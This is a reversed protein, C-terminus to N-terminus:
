KERDNGLHLDDKRRETEVLVPLYIVFTTGQGSESQITIDGHHDKIIGYSVSLGLGTGKGAAKTTFFPEFIKAQIDKPIGPGSDSLRIEIREPGALATEITIMGPAGEMAQQANIMLNMLVQQIQNSNGIIMPLQPSFKKELRVKHIGLQHDVIACADEIVSNIDISVYSVKEQRAFKMLNDIIGKCRKTEKEIIRLNAKLPSGEEVKRLSLQAYGLIGALPNKVEHAIGAGLQGFAAMKESQILQTQAEKLAVERATLETTMKNFSGALDGIEDNSDVEIHVDFVGSGVVQTARSLREIPKTLKNSWFLSILSSSILLMLSVALLYMLLERATSFATAKTIQVGSILGGVDIKAFGGVMAVGEQSYEATTGLSEKKALQSLDPLGSIKAQSVVKNKDSHALLAGGADFISTEFVKTRGALRLLSNLRIVAAIVPPNGRKAEYESVALTFAPLEPSLSCNQIFVKGNSIDDLPLPNTRYYEDYADKSLGATKLTQSDYITVKERHTDYRTVLVFEDFDEFLKKIMAAKQEQPLGKEGIIRSFVRLKERYGQLLASAEDATHLAIVSTLDHIYTEKDKHFLSAMTFTIVSVAATVVFLLTLLIKFRLPFRFRVRMLMNKM